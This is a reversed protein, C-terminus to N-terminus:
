EPLFDGNMALEFSFPCVPPFAEEAMGTEKAAALVADAYAESFSEDLESKLSPSDKLLRGIKRRQEKITYRWSNSRLTPQYTWKLLHTLLIAMRNVFARRESRGMGELEEAIHEVDIESLHGQRMLEANHMAWAYFDQEYLETM